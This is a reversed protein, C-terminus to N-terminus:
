VKGLINGYITFGTIIDPGSTDNTSIRVKFQEGKWRLPLKQELIRKGGIQSSGVQAFGIQGVGGTTVTVTDTTLESFDGTVSITYTVPSSAEFQPKIYHGTKVQTSERTEDLMLWGTEVITQYASGDDSYQGTDFKYVKGDAGACVLDGNKRVLFTKQEAFVGTFKSWSGYPSVNIQGALYYPTYNYNYIIDGIKCLLWNRRPYHILQVEDPDSGEIASSIESKISESINATQFADADFSATFNRIGDNAAFTMTGGISELGFRSALGQPFLGVPLFDTADATVDRIPNTGKDAYVNREGGGVLYQQFTAMSLLREAQPQRDGYKESASDITQQFTTMDQPDDPGSIRVISPDRSDIYYARGYHVHFWDAVPMASKYFQISDNATQGTISTGTLQTTTVASVKAIASRTTNYYYDGSKIETDLWNVGSVAVGAASTGTTATAFNDVGQNQDIINLEILDLIRYFDGSAQNSGTLGLGTGGTGITTHTVETASVNTVIAYGGKTSNYVLDNDVVLTDTVWNPVNADTIHTTDTASSSAQGRIIQAELETFTTGDETFFNRDVGNVFILRKGMQGSILRSSSDKGTLVQSWTESSEDYKYISGAASALLIANGNKDVLEHLGTLTPNGSITAGLQEIGQRKEADGNINIFRNTFVKSYELPIESEAFETGLGSRGPTYKTQITVM